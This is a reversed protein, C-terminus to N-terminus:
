YEKLLDEDSAKFIEEERAYFYSATQRVLEDLIEKDPKGYM